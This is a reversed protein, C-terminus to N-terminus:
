NPLTKIVDDNEEPSVEETTAIDHKSTEKSLSPKPTGHPTERNEFVGAGLRQFPIHISNSM